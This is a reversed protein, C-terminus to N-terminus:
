RGLSEILEFGAQTIRPDLTGGSTKVENSVIFLAAKNIPDVAMFSM